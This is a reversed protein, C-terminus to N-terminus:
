ASVLKETSCVVEMKLASSMYRLFTPIRVANNGLLGNDVGEGGHSGRIEYQPLSGM